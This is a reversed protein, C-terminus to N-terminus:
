KFDYFDRPEVEVDLEVLVDVELWPAPSKKPLAPKLELSPSPM